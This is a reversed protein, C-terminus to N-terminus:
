PRDVVFSKVVVRWSGKSSAFIELNPKAPANEAAAFSTRIANMADKKAHRVMADDSRTRSLKTKLLGKDVSNGRGKAVTDIFRYAMTDSRLKTLEIGYLWVTERRSDVVLEADRPAFFIAPVEDALQLSGVIESFLDRYSSSVLRIPVQIHGSRADCGPPVLVAIRAGQQAQARIRVATVDAAVNPKRTVFFVAVCVQDLQRRGLYFLAREGLDGVGGELGLDAAIKKAFSEMDLEYGEVDSDTLTRSPVGDDSSLGYLEGDPMRVADLLRIDATHAPHAASTLSRPRLRRDAIWEEIAHGFADRWTATPHHWPYLSWLDLHPAPPAAGRIGVADLFRMVPGDAIGRRYRAVSPVKITVPVRRPRKGVLHLDIKAEIPRGETLRLGRRELARFCDPATLRFKEDGTVWLVERLCAKSIAVVHAPPELAERGNKLPELTYVANDSFFEPDDFLVRGLAERYVTAMRATRVSVLLRGTDGYYRITDCHAPRYKLAKRGTGVVAVPAQIRSGHLVQITFFNDDTAVRVDAYDGMANSTCWDRIIQKLASRLHALSAPERTDKAVYERYTNSPRAEQVRMQARTVIEEAAANQRQAILVRVALDRPSEDDPWAGTDFQRAIAVEFLANRGEESGLDYIAQLAELQAESAGQEFASMISDHSINRASLGPPYGIEGFLAQWAPISVEEIFVADLFPMPTDEKRDAAKGSAGAMAAPKADM